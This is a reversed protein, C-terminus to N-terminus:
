FSDYGSKLRAIAPVPFELRNDTLITGVAPGVQNQRIGLIHQDLQAVNSKVTAPFAFLLIFLLAVILVIILAIVLRKM